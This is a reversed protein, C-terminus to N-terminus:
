KGIMMLLDYLHPVIVNLQRHHAKTYPMDSSRFLSFFALLLSVCNLSFEVIVKGIKVLLNITLTSKIEKTLSHM